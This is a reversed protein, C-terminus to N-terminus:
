GRKAASLSGTLLSPMLKDILGLSGRAIYPTNRGTLTYLPQQGDPGILTGGAEQLICHAAAIDWDHAGPRPLRSILAAALPRVLRHALAAINPMGELAVRKRARRDRVRQAPRHACLRPRNPQCCCPKVRIARAGGVGIPSFMEGRAPVHLLGLVPENGALVGLAICWDNRGEMFARTGDIPDIVVTLGTGHAM